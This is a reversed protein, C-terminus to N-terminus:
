NTDALISYKLVGKESSKRNTGKVDLVGVSFTNTNIRSGGERTLDQSQIIKM